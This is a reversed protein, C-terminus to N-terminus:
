NRFIGVHDSTKGEKGEEKGEERSCIELAAFLLRGDSLIQGFNSKKGTLGKQFIFCEKALWKRSSVNELFIFCEKALLKWSSVNEM